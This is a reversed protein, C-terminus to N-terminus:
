GAVHRSRSAPASVFRARSTAPPKPRELGRQSSGQAAGGGGIERRFSFGKLDCALHVRIVLVAWSSGEEEPIPAPDTLFLSRLAFGAPGMRAGRPLVMVQLPQCCSAARRM